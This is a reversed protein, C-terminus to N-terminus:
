PPCHAIENIIPPILIDDCILQFHELDIHYVVSNVEEKKFDCKCLRNCTNGGKKNLFIYIERQSM